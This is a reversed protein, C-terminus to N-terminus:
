APEHARFDNGPCGDPEAESSWWGVADVTIPENCGACLSADTDIAARELERWRVRASDITTWVMPNPRGARGGQHKKVRELWADAKRRSLFLMARPTSWRERM